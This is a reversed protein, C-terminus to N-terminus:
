FCINNAMGNVLLRLSYNSVKGIAESSFLSIQKSLKALQDRGRATYWGKWFGISFLLDSICIVYKDHRLYHLSVRVVNCHIACAEM